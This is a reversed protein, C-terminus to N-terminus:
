TGVGRHHTMRGTTHTPIQAPLIATDGTHDYDPTVEALDLGVIDGRECLGPMEDYLLGGPGPAGIIAVDTDIAGWNQVYPSKGFASIGVFPLNQRGAEYGHERM